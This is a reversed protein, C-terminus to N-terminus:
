PAELRAVAAAAAADSDLWAVVRMPQEDIYAEFAAEQGAEVALVSVRGDDNACLVMRLCHERLRRHSPTAYYGWNKRVVDLETASPTTFTVQEDARLEVDAVHAITAAGVAFTRPPTRPRVEM